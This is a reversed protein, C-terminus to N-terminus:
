HDRRPLREAAAIASRALRMSRLLGAIASEIDARPDGTWRPSTECASAYRVRVGPSEVLVRPLETRVLAARWGALDTLQQAASALLQEIAAVAGDIEVYLPPAPALRAQRCLQSLKHYDASLQRASSVLANM